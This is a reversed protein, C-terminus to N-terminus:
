RTRSTSSSMASPRAQDPNRIGEIVDGDALPVHVEVVTGSHPRGRISFEGQLARARQRMGAIGHSLKGRQADDPVGSGDDVVILTVGDAARVIEIGVAKAQAHRVVNTLAEQVIRFLAISVDRPLPEDLGSASVQWELGARGCVEGAQWELAAELGVNDLLTPRLEDIIRRKVQVAEDLTALARELRERATADSAHLRAQAWSVDMKASVLVAGLEDHLDRALKRKEDERVSQLYSALDSLETTRQAVLSELRRQDAQMLERAKERSALERHALLWVFLLLVVSVGTMLRTGIRATAIDHDWRAIRDYLQTREEVLMEDLTGSLKQMVSHGVDTITLNLAARGGSKEFLALGAELEALRMGILNNLESFRTRQKEDGTSMVFERVKDVRDAIRPVAFSYPELYRKNGTLLYGRQASEADAVLSRLEFLLTQTELSTAILRNVEDLRGFSREAFVLVAISVALGFILPVLVRFPVLRTMPHSQRLETSVAKRATRLERNGPARPIYVPFM